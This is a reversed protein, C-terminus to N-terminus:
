RFGGKDTRIGSQRDRQRELRRRMRQESLEDESWEDVGAGAVCRWAVILFIVLWAAVALIIPIM